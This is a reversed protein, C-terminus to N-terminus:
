LTPSSNAQPKTRTLRMNWIFDIVFVLAYCVNSAIVAGLISFRANSVLLFDLLLKVGVGIAMAIMSYRPKGQATLCASLTQLCSLTVASVSFAKVLHVLTEKEMASLSRYIIDVVTPAFFYLGVACPLSVLLTMLLSFVIRKRVFHEGGAGYDTKAQSVAPVSAAALGYCVSVPLNIITVAGGSFLGYLTVAESTYGDMLRVLMVSEVLNSLPLLASSLTVFISVKLIEKAGVRGRDKKLLEPAPVRKYFFVMLLLAVVESITVALLLMTVAKEINERYLYAFLLGFGVKVLQETIESAATPRMDMRGQFWGRFVSIASVLFVSPALAIYGGVLSKEGQASALLPSIALMLITGAGGILLFLKMAPALVRRGREGKAREASELAAISSPIGTASVTLLLCYFPYVMQYLGIGRGGILNTLPIRYIAGILKAIFGGAAVIAAGKLFGKNKMM